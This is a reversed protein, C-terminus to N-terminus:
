RMVEGPLRLIEAHAARRDAAHAVAADLARDFEADSSADDADDNVDAAILEALSRLADGSMLAGIEDGHQTYVECVIVVDPTVTATPDDGIDLDYDVASLLTVGFCRPWWYRDERRCEPIQRLVQAATISYSM